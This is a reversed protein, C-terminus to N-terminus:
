GIKRFVVNKRKCFVPAYVNILIITKREYKATVKILRGAIVEDVEYSLPAFSRSFLIAVGASTSSKHSMIVTGDWERQWDIENEKCSHTEQIFSTDINKLKVLEYFYNRKKADRAGNLNLSSIKFEAMFLLTIVVLVFRVGFCIWRNNHDKWSM